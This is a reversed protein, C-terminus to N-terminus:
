KMRISFIYVQMCTGTSSLISKLSDTWEFDYPYRAQKKVKLTKVKEQPIGLRKGINYDSCEKFDMVGDSKKYKELMTEMYISFMQLEIEAKTATGFNQEYFMRAIKDFAAAKKEKLEANTM